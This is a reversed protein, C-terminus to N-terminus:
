VGGVPCGRQGGGCNQPCDGVVVAATTCSHELLLLLLLQCDPWWLLKCRSTVQAVVAPFNAVEGLVTTLGLQAICWTNWSNPHVFM